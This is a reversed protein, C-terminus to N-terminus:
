LNKVKKVVWWTGNIIYYITPGKIVKTPRKSIKRVNELRLFDQVM